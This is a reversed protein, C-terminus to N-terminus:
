IGINCGCATLLLILLYSLLCYRVVLGNSTLFSLLLIVTSVLITVAWAMFIVIRYARETLTRHKLPWDIAYFREASILFGSILSAQSSVVQFILSVYAPLTATWLQDDDGNFYIYLPLAVAGFMLDAFAMNIVLFLSKKNRLKKNVAFVVITLLNGIVILAAELAFASCWVIEETRSPLDEMSPTSTNQSCKPFSTNKM